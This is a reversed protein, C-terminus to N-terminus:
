FSRFSLGIEIRRPEYFRSPDKLLAATVTPTLSYDPSGTNAFVFGNVFNTNLLNFVRGFVSFKFGGTEFFKEGRIDILVFGTKRGSNTELAANFGSGMEPTFPQGSGLRIITSVSFNDPVYYIITTNLTNRQDWAFPLNRPRSDQHNAKRNASESPDSSNGEAFQLTYDISTTLYGINRQSLSLTFGYVSGFDVNTFRAYEAAAYTSVFEVGLLDRIDKYFFSIDAGLLQSFEQKLGFEYQVTKEPKLDPNGMVGYSIGGAQLQDLIAYDANNYLLGLGPLQYFHGYSFHASATATLPFSFGLRPALANKVTTKKQYSAPQDAISNAPNQLDSPIFSNASFSEYRVGARIVLDGLEIRDQLYTAMQTPTYSNILNTKQNASTRVMTTRPQLIEVGNVIPNDLIGPSGFDMYSKQFELGAEIFHNRTAQWTYEGKM